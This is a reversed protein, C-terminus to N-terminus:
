SNSLNHIFTVSNDLTQLLQDKTKPSIRLNGIDNLLSQHIASINPLPKNEIISQAIADFKKVIDQIREPGVQKQVKLLINFTVLDENVFSHPPQLEKCKKKNKSFVGATAFLTGCAAGFLIAKFM